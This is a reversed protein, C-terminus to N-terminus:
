GGRTKTTTPIARMTALTHALMAQALEEEGVFVRAGGETALWKAEDEHHSRVAVQVQPNLTRATEIMRRVGLADPVAIVLLAAEAIHAQILVAPEAADGIVAPTGQARLEEVRERHEDVVV